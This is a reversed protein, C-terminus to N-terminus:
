RNGTPVVVTVAVALLAVPVAVHENRTIRVSDVGGAIVHGVSMTTDVKGPSDLATTSYESGDAMSLQLWTMSVHSGGDPETKGTPVLVTTQVAASTEPFM